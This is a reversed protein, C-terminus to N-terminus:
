STTGPYGPKCTMAAGPADTAFPRYGSQHLQNHAEEYSRNIIAGCFTSTDLPEKAAVNLAERLYNPRMGRDRKVEAVAGPSRAVRGLGLLRRNTGM